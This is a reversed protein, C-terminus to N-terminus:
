FSYSIEVQLQDWGGGDPLNDITASQYRLQRYEIRGLVTERFSRSLAVTYLRYDQQTGTLGSGSSDYDDAQYISEPHSDRAPQLRQLVLM